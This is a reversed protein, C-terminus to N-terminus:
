IIRYTKDGCSCFLYKLKNNLNIICMAWCILNFKLLIKLLPQHVVFRDFLMYIDELDTWIVRQYPMCKVFCFPFYNKGTATYGVYQQKSKGAISKIVAWLTIDTIKILQILLFHIWRTWSPVSLPRKYVCFHVKLHWLIYLM